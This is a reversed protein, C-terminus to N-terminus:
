NLLAPAVTLVQRMDYRSGGVVIKPAGSEILVDTVIGHATKGSTVMLDVARGVMSAAIHSRILNLAYGQQASATGKSLAKM